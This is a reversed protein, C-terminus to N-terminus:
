DFWGSEKRSLLDSWIDKLNLTFVDTMDSNMVPAGNLMIAYEGDGISVLQADGDHLYDVDFDGTTLMAGALDENTLLEMADEFDSESMGPLPPIIVQDNFEVAGGTVEQIARTLRDEKADDGDFDGSNDGALQTDHVYHGIIADRMNTQLEADIYYPAIAKEVAAKFYKDKPTLDKRRENFLGSMVRRGVDNRATGMLRAAVGAGKPLGSRDLDRMYYEFKDGYIEQREVLYDWKEAPDLKNFGDVEAGAQGNTLLRIEDGEVGRNSQEEIIYDLKDGFESEANSEDAGDIGSAYRDREVRADVNKLISAVPDRQFDNAARYYQDRAQEWDAADDAFTDGAVYLPNNSQPKADRLAQEAERPAMTKLNEVFGYVHTARVVADEFIGAQEAGGLQAVQDFVSDDYPEGRMARAITNTQIRKVTGSNEQRLTAKESKISNRLSTTVEPTLMDKYAPDDLLQEAQDLKRTRVFGRVANKVLSAQGTRTMNDLNRKGLGDFDGMEEMLQDLYGALSDPDNVVAVGKRNIMQKANDIAKNTVAVRAHDQARGVWNGISRNLRDSGRTQIEASPLMGGEPGMEPLGLVDERLSEAYRNLGEVFGPATPDTESLLRNYEEGMKVDFNKTAESLYASDVTKQEKIRNRELALAAGAAVKQLGRGLGVDARIQPNISAAQQDITGPLAARQHNVGLLTSAM